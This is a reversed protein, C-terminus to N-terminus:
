ELIPFIRLPISALLSATDLEIDHALMQPTIAHAEKQILSCAIDPLNQQRPHLPLLRLKSPNTLHSDTLITLAFNCASVPIQAENQPAAESNWTTQEISTSAQIPSQTDITSIAQKSHLQQPV